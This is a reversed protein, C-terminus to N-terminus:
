NEVVVMRHTDFAPTQVTLRGNEHEWNEIPVDGPQLTVKVPREICEITVKGAPVDPLSEISVSRQGGRGPGEKREGHAMNVLHLVLRGRQKRLVVEVDEPLDARLRRSEPPLVKEMVKRMFDLSPTCKGHSTLFPSAIYWARGKGFPAASLWPFRNGEKDEAELLSRAGACRVPYLYHHLALGAGAKGERIRYDAPDRVKGAPELGFVEALRPDATLGMGTLLAQGGSEIWAILSDADAQSLKRPHEVILLPSEVAGEALQWDGVMEYNLHLKPLFEALGDIRNNRRGFPQANMDCLAYHAARNHFISVDPARKSGLCWDQRARLFPSAVDAYAQYVEPTVASEQSPTGWVNFRGGNALIVAMEQELQPRPKATKKANGKEDAVLTHGTTMLEFPLGAGDYWHAEASLGEVRNGIDGTLYAIGPDPKEPMRISNAWNFTILCDPKKAHIHRCIGAIFERYVQRQMECFNSWGPGIEKPLERSWQKRFRDACAECYCPRVTFVSGDFWFGDPDYGALLEDLMPEIYAEAVGSHYCLSTDIESGDARSRNWEPRRKEIEGDRGINYYISWHLGNRRAMDRWLGLVDARLKEPTHGAKSSYTTWGPRGKAHIQISDPRAALILRETTEPDADRGVEKDGLTHHDEHLLFFAREYWTEADAYGPLLLLALFIPFAKM